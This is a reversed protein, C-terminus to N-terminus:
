KSSATQRQQTSPEKIIATLAKTFSVADDHDLHSDDPCTFHALESYDEYHICLATTNAVLVGWYRQQPFREQYVRLVGGGKPMSLFIVRGGRAHLRAVSQELRDIADALKEPPLGLGHGLANRLYIKRLYDTDVNNSDVHVSRDPLFLGGSLEKVPLECAQVHRILRQPTLAPLRMVTRAQVEMRLRQELLATAGQNKYRRVYEAQLGEDPEYGHIFFFPTLDCIITGCFSEDEILDHFVPICNSGHIALQVPKRGSFYAAFVDNDLRQIRSTGVFVVADPDNRAVRARNLCWLDADDSYAPVFGRSRWFLEM